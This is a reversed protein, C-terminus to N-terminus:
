NGVVHRNHVFDNQAQSNLSTAVSAVLHGDREQRKEDHATEGLYDFPM